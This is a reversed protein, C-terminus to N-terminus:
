RVRLKHIFVLSRFVFFSAINCGNGAKMSLGLWRGSGNYKGQLPLHHANQWITNDFLVVLIIFFVTCVLVNSCFIMRIDTTCSM